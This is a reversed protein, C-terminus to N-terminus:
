RTPASETWSPANRTSFTAVVAQNLCEREPQPAGGPAGCGDGWGWQFALDHSGNEATDRGEREVGAVANLVDDPMTVHENLARRSQNAPRM